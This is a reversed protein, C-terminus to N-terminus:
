WQSRASPAGTAWCGASGTRRRGAAAAVGRGPLLPPLRRRGPRSGLGARGGDPGVGVCGAPRPPWPDACPQSRTPAAGPRVARASRRVPGDPRTPRRGTLGAAELRAAFLDPGRGGPCGPRRHDPRIQRATGPSSPHDVTVTVLVEHAVTVPGQEDILALYDTTAPDDSDLDLGVETSSSVTHKPGSQPPGMGAVHHRHGALPGPRCPGLAAGWGALMEDQDPGRRWRSGMDRSGCAGGHGDGRQQDVVAAGEMSAEDHETSSPWVRCSRHFPLRHTASCRHDSGGGDGAPSSSACGRCLASRCPRGGGGVSPSSWAAWPGSSGSLRPFRHSCSGPSSSSEPSSRSCGTAPALGLLSGPGTRTGSGTPGSAGDVGSTMDVPESQTRRRSPRPSTAGLDAVPAKTRSTPRTAAASASEGTSTGALRDGSTAPSGTSAFGTIRGAQGSGAHGAVPRTAVSAGKSAGLSKVTVATHAATTIGRTWGGAVGPRRGGRGRRDADAQLPRVPTVAAMLFCVFGTM